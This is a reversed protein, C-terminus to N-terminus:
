NQDGEPKNWKIPPLDMSSSSQDSLQQVLAVQSVALSKMSGSHSELKEHIDIIDKQLTSVRKIARALSHSMKQAIHNQYKRLHLAEKLCEGTRDELRLTLDEVKLRLEDNERELRDLREELSADKSKMAM